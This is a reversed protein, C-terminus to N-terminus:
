SNVYMKLVDGDNLAAQDGSEPSYHGVINNVSICTPFAVGKLLDKKNKYHNGVEEVILKDGLECLELINKGPVCETILKAIVETHIRHANTQKLIFIM